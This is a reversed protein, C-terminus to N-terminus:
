PLLVGFDGVQVGDDATPANGETFSGWFSVGSSANGKLQMTRTAVEAANDAATLAVQAQENVKEVVYDPSYLMFRTVGPFEVYVVILDAFFQQLMGDSGAQINTTEAAGQRVTLPDGGSAAAYVQGTANTVLEGTEPNIVPGPGFGYDFAM